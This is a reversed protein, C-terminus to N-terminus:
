QAELLLVWDSEGDANNGPTTFAQSAASEFSGADTTAGNTPDFWTAVTPLALEGLNLTISGGNPIYAIALEGDETKAAGVYGTSGYSGRGATVLASSLDPVLEQWARTRFLDGAAQYQHMGVSDLDYPAGQSQSALNSSSSDFHWIGEHGFFYGKSGSLMSLLSQIRLLKTTYGYQTNLEYLSELAIVPADNEEYESQVQAYITGGNWDYAGAIDEWDGPHADTPAFNWHATVLHRTDVSRIGAVMADYEATGFSGPKDGGMIWILNDHQEFVTAIAAGYAECKEAGNAVVMDYFGQSGDYGAWAPALFVVFGREAARSVVDSLKEFFEDNFTSFDGPTTFPAVGDADNPDGDQYRSLVMLELANIGREKRDDLYANQETVGIQLGLNWASEGWILFPDGNADVLFRGTPDAALLLSTNPNGASGGNGGNSGGSAGGSGGQAGAGNGGTTSPSGGSGGTVSTSGGTASGGSSPGTGGAGGSNSSGGASGGSCGFGVLACALAACSSLIRSSM